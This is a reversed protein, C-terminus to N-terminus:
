KKNIDKAKVMKIVCKYTNKKYNEIDFKTKTKLCKDIEKILKTTEKVRIVHKPFFEGFTEYYLELKKGLLQPYNYDYTINQLSKINENIEELKKLKNQELIITEDKNFISHGLANLDINFNESNLIKTKKNNYYNIKINLPFQKIESYINNELICLDYYIDNNEKILINKDKKLNSYNEEFGYIYNDMKKIWEDNIIIQMNSIPVKSINSFKLYLWEKQADFKYLRTEISPVARPTNQTKYNAFFIKFQKISYIVLIITALSGLGTLIVALDKLHEISFLNSLFNFKQYNAYLLYNLM